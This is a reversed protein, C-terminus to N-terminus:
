SLLSPPARSSVTRHLSDVPFHTLNLLQAESSLPTELSRASWAILVSGDEELKTQGQRASQKQAEAISAGKEGHGSPRVKHHAHQAAWAEAREVSRGVTAFTFVLLFATSIVRKMMM